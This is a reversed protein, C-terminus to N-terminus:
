GGLSSRIQAATEEAGPIGGAAALEMCALAKEMDRPASIVGGGGTAYVAGLQRAAFTDGLEVARSLYEVAKDSDVDVAQGYM